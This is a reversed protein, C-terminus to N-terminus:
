TEIKRLFESTPFNKIELNDPLHEKYPKFDVFFGVSSKELYIEDWNGMSDRYIVRKKSFNKQIEEFVEDADNTVSRNGLDLDVIFVRDQEVRVIEYDSRQTKTRM